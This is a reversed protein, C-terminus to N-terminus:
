AAPFLFYGLINPGATCKASPAGCGLSRYMKASVGKKFGGKRPDQHIVDEEEDEEEEEEGSRWFTM